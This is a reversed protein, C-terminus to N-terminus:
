SPAEIDVALGVKHDGRELNTLDLNFSLTLTIFDHIKQQISTGMQRDKNLKLRLMTTEDLKLRTGIGVTWEQRDDRHALIGNIATDWDRNVIDM